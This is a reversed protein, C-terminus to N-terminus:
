SKRLRFWRQGSPNPFVVRNTGTAVENWVTGGPLKSAELKWGPVPPEWFVEVGHLTRAISLQPPLTYDYLYAAGSAFVFSPMDDLFAGVLITDESLAVSEGFRHEAAGDYARLTKLAAWRNTGEAHRRFITTSGSNNGVPDDLRNGVVLLDGRVAVTEGFWNGTRADPSTVEQVQLWAGNNGGTEYICVSGTDPGATDAMRAGVAATSAHLAASWGLQDGPQHNTRLIKQTQSWGLVSRSFVYAAGASTGAEPDFPAGALVNSGSVAISWGLWAGPHGNIAILKAAESWMNDNTAAHEFVYGAGASEGGEDQHYAGVAITADDVGLSWGFWDETAADTAMLKQVQGWNNSGGAHRRFIYVAGANTGGEHDHLPAGIAITDGHVVVVNGFWDDAAGDSATLKRVQQWRNTGIRDRHFVYASGSSSGHDDDWLAGMVAVDGDVSVSVGFQDGDETDDGSVRGLSSLLLQPGNTDSASVTSIFSIFGLGLGLLSALLSRLRNTSPSLYLLNSSGARRTRASFPECDITVSRLTFTLGAPAFSPM